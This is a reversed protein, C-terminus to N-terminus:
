GDMGVRGGGKKLLGLAALAAGLCIAVDALNFIAFRMFQLEIFDVVYGYMLRDALNGLGGAAVLLLAGRTLSSYGKARFFIVLVALVMAGTLAPVLWGAQHGLSFAMGTNRAYTFGVVGPWLPLSARASLVEQAWCKSLRDLALVLASAAVWRKM